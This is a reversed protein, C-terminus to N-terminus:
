QNLEQMLAQVYDELACSRSGKFLVIGRELQLIRWIYIFHDIDKIEFFCQDDLESGLGAAVEKSYQGQYLVFVNKLSAISRGLQYHLDPAAHGLEKMDGLVVVFPGKASMQALRSLALRMSVPNANYCDDVLVFSGFEQVHFRHEPISLSDFRYCNEAIEIGLGDLAAVTALINELMGPWPFVFSIKRGRSWLTYSFYPRVSSLRSNELGFNDAEAKQYSFTVWELDERKSVVENLVPYDLSMVAVGNSAIHDFIVAKERAVGKESELGQLHAPGINVIMGVDPCAIHGLRDMEGIESVGLELIWFDEEGTMSLISLSLGLQNNWNKYSKGVDARLERELFSAMMEKVTTKGATGTIGIVPGSFRRRVESALAGLARLSNDVLLVPVEKSLDAVPREVILAVAGGQVALDVFDHGDFNDGRLGVFLDGPQVLRSDTCIKAITLDRKDDFDGTASVTQSIESLKMQLM